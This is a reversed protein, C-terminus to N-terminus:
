YSVIMMYLVIVAQYIPQMYKKLHSEIERQLFKLKAESAVNIAKGLVKLGGYSIDQIELNEGDIELQFQNSSNMWRHHSRKTETASSTEKKPENFKHLLDKFKNFM